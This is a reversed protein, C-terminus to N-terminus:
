VGGPRLAAQILSAEKGARALIGALGTRLRAIWRRPPDPRPPLEARAHDLPASGVRCDACRLSGLKGLVAEIEAGCALCVIAREGSEAM